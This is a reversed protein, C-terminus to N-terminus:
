IEQPKKLPCYCNRGGWPFGRPNPVWVKPVSSLSSPQKSCGLQALLAARVRRHEPGRCPQAGPLLSTIWGRRAGARPKEWMTSKKSVLGHRQGSRSPSLRCYIEWYPRVKWFIRLSIKLDADTVVSYKLQCPMKESQNWYSGSLKSIIPMQKLLFAQVQSFFYSKQNTDQFSCCHQHGLSSVCVQAHVAALDELAGLPAAAAGLLVELMSLLLLHASNISSM